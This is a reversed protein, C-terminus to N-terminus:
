HYPFTKSIDSYKVNVLHSKGTGGSGSVFIDVPEFDHGDYKGYDKAYEHVVNLVERQKSNLSNIGRAIEDDPLIQSMFNPIASTKNQKHTKQIMKMPINQKQHKMM